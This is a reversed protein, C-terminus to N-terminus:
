AADEIDHQVFQVILIVDLRMSCREECIHLWRRINNEQINDGHTLQIETCGSYM